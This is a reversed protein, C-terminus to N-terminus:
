RSAAGHLQLVDGIRYVTEGGVDPGTLKGRAAWQRIANATIPKGSFWPLIRALEVATGVMDRAQALLALRREAVSFERGCGSCEVMSLEDRAYLRLGCDCLGICVREVPRDIAARAATVVAILAPHIRAIAPADGPIGPLRRRLFEAQDRSARPAPEGALVAVRLAYHRLTRVLADRADSAGQHYPLARQRAGGRSTGALKSAGVADSRSLTTDLEALLGPVATLERTIEDRQARDLPEAIM